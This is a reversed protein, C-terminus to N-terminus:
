ETSGLLVFAGTPQPQGGAPEDTVAAAMLDTATPPVAVNLVASGQSNTNFVSASIKAGAKTVFWLQYSRNAAAQPLGSVYVRWTKEDSFIRSRAGPAAGQGKLDIVRLAALRLGQDNMQNELDVVRTKLDSVESRLTNNSIWVLALVALSAAAAAWGTWGLVGFLPRKAPTPRATASNSEAQALLRKKVSESPTQLPLNMTLSQAAAECELVENRCLTCGDEDLHRAFERRENEDLAGAAYLIARERLEESLQLHKM